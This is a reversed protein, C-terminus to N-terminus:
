YNLVTVQAAAGTHSGPKNVGGPDGTAGSGAISGASNNKGAVGPKGPAGGPGGGGPQGPGGPPAPMPLPLVLTTSVSKPVYVVVGAMADVGEGGQGALGGTGGKGGPGASGGGNGTCGCDTGDGGNGGQQGASGQGGNGGDGGPGSQTAVVLSSLKAGTLTLNDTITITTASSPTGPNGTSGGTGATSQKGESGNGGGPGAIGASSCQGPAGSGAQGAAKPTPPTPVPLGKRGLINFDGSYGTPPGGTRSLSTCKFQLPTARAVICGGDELVIGNPLDIVRLSGDPTSVDWVTNVVLPGSSSVQTSVKAELPYATALQQRDADSLLDNGVAYRILRQLLAIAPKEAAVSAGQLLADAHEARRQPPLGMDLLMKLHTEDYLLVHTEYLGNDGAVASVGFASLLQQISM